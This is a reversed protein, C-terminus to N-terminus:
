VDVEEKCRNCWLQGQTVGRALLKDCRPCRNERGPTAGLRLARKGYMVNCRCRPHQPITDRGSPFPQDIPVWGAAENARCEATVREDGQSFWRKEDDGRQAAVQRQGQGLATATETRAVMDARSRSFAFDERLSKALAQLSEGREIARATLARVRERTLNALNLDGDVRLLDAARVRAYDAALQGLLHPPMDPLERLVAVSFAAELEAEVEEGYKHWWDWDHAEVDDVGFKRYARARRQFLGLLEELERSLRGRWGEAMRERPKELEPFPLPPLDGGVEQKAAV